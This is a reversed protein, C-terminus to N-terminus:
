ASERSMNAMATDFTVQERTPPTSQSLFKKWRELDTFYPDEVLLQLFFPVRRSQSMLMAAVSQNIKAEELGFRETKGSRLSNQIYQELEGAHYAKKMRLYRQHHNVKMKCLVGRCGAKNYAYQSYHNMGAFRADLIEATIQSGVLPPLDTVGQLASFSNLLDQLQQYDVQPVGNIVTIALNYLEVRKSDVIEEGQRTVTSVIPPLTIKRPQKSLTKPEKVASELHEQIAQLEKIMSESLTKPGSELIQDLTEPAPEPSFEPELPTKPQLETQNSDVPPQIDTKPATVPDDWDDFNTISTM